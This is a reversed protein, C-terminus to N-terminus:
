EPGGLQLCANLLANCLKAARPTKFVAVAEKDELLLGALAMVFVFLATRADGSGAASEGRHYNARLEDFSQQCELDVLDRVCARPVEARVAAMASQVVDLAQEETRSWRGHQLSVSMGCFCANRRRANFYALDRTCHVRACACAPSFGRARQV